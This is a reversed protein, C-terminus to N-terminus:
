IYTEIVIKYIQEIEIIGVNVDYHVQLNFYPCHLSTMIWLAARFPRITLM